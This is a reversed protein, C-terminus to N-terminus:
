RSNSRINKAIDSTHESIKNEIENFKNYYNGDEINELDDFIVRKMFDFQSEYKYCINAYDHMIGDVVYM